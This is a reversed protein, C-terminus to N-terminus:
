SAIDSTVDSAGVEAMKQTNDYDTAHVTLVKTM